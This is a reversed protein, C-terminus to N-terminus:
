KGSRSAVFEKWLEDLDAGCDEKFLEPKYTRARLAANLHSIIQPNKQEELWQLFAGAIRYGEKYSSKEPDLRFKRVGPEFHKDRVWEAIAETVWFEGRRYSQVVHTLEHVVMGWDDPHDRVWRASIRIGSGSAGAVGRMAPDFILRVRKPPLFGDSKLLEHIKPYWEVCLQGAKAGWAEVDPAASTDVQIEALLEGSATKAEGKWSIAPEPQPVPFPERTLTTGLKTANKTDGGTALFYTEQAIGADINELRTEDATFTARNLAVWDGEKTRVWGPGFRARRVEQPSKGDRRFDEIFSYLGRLPAGKTVTRFTALHKWRNEAPIRFFAAFSTKEGEVTARV